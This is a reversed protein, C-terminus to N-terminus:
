FFKNSFEFGVAGFRTQPIEHPEHLCFSYSNLSFPESLSKRSNIPYTLCKPLMSMNISPGINHGMWIFQPVYIPVVLKNSPTYNYMPYDIAVTTSYTGTNMGHM